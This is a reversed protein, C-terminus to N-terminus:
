VKLSTDVYMCLRYINSAFLKGSVTFERHEHNLHLGDRVFSKIKLTFRMTLKPVDIFYRYYFLIVEFIM